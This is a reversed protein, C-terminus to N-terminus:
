VDFVIIVSFGQATRQIQLNHYTVAKIEKKQEGIPAGHLVAHLHQEEIELDFRDFGLGEAEGFYLLESLFSVLLSEIDGGELEITRTIRPEPQLTQEMLWFMGSASLAFLESLAPSWVKLAWDATHEVESFGSSQELMMGVCGM